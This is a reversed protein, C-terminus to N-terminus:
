KGGSQRKVKVTQFVYKAKGKLVVISYKIVGIM